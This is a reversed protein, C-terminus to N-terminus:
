PQQMIHPQTTEQVTLGDNEGHFLNEHVVVVTFGSPKLVCNEHTRWTWRPVYMSAFIATYIATYIM